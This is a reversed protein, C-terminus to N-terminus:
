HTGQPDVADRRWRPKRRRRRRGRRRCLHEEKTMSHRVCLIGSLLPPVARWGCPAPTGDLSGSANSAGSTGSAVPFWAQLGGQTNPLVFGVDGNFLRLVPDNRLVMVPRGAFWPARGEGAPPAGLQERAHRELRDNVAQLGRPGARLATLVIFGAWARAVAAPDGPHHRVADLYPALGDHMAKWVEPSLAPSTPGGADELWQLDGGPAAAHLTALADAAKGANIDAALRAIGSDPAFRHTRTFWVASDHLASTQVPAPATLAQPPVGCLPALAGRTAPGLTPDASLEAFVAGSEVAALQDKDGLLVIRAHEPVAELLRRALALDLMSAEDVVLADLALPQSAHHVFREPGPRVRLLRHVTSAEAPLRARLDAPLHAARERLAETLRAAAKGTPAALAIRCGPEAALLCALLNVVTTSKGTGPGGSIVVFRRRLALAAAVQQWDPAGDRPGAFLTRLREATAADIPTPPAAAARALRAALRREHDFSRALYLHDDDDLVLPTTAPPPLPATLPATVRGTATATVPAEGTATVPAAVPTGARGVLPSARLTARLAQLAAAEEGPDPRREDNGVLEELPLCVHGEAHALALALTARRLTAATADDAGLARAWRAMRAALGEALARAPSDDRPTM